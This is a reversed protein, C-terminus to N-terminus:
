LDFICVISEDDNRDRYKHLCIFKDFRLAIPIGYQLAMNKEALHFM